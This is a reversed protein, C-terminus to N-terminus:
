FLNKITLLNINQQQEHLASDFVFMNITVTISLVTNHPRINNISSILGLVSVHTVHIEM